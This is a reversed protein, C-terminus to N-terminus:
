SANDKESLERVARVVESDDAAGIVESIFEEATITPEHQVYKSIAAQIRVMASRILAEPDSM